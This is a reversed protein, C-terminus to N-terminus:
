TTEQRAALHKGLLYSTADRLARRFQPDYARPSAVSINVGNLFQGNLTALAPDTILRLVAQGGDAVTSLPRIGSERVMTTDMFDAPHVCNVVVGTGDLDRALDFTHAALALKSRRYAEVGNYGDRFQIDAVDFEVQGVSGVHVIRAPASRALLPLLSRTLLVPALYNVALRLENGDQSVQRAGGPPGFGGAANNVLVNLAGVHGSVQSALRSVDELSALDARWTRIGALESALDELKAQNRGHAHVTWGARHLEAALYRGLGGTAGTVLATGAAQRQGTM